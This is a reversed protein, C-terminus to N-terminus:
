QVRKFGARDPIFPRDDPQEGTLEPPVGIKGRGKSNSKLTEESVSSGITFTRSVASPSVKALKAVDALTPGRRRKHGNQETM